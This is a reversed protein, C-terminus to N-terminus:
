GALIGGHVYHYTVVRGLWPLWGPDLDLGPRRLRVDAHQVDLVVDVHTRTCVIAGPRRV